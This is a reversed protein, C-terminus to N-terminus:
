SEGSSMSSVRSSAPWPMGPRCLSGLLIMCIVPLGCVSSFGAVNGTSGFDQWGIQGWEYRFTLVINSTALRAPSRVAHDSLCGTYSDNLPGDPVPISSRNVGSISQVAISGSPVGYGPSM